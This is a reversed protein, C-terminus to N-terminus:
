RRRASIQTYILLALYFLTNVVFITCMTLDRQSFFRWAMFGSGVLIILCVWRFARPNEIQYWKRRPANREIEALNNVLVKSCEEIYSEKSEEIDREVLRTHLKPSLAKLGVQEMGRKRKEGAQELYHELFQQPDPYEKM